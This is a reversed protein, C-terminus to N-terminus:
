KAKTTSKFILFQATWYLIITVIKSYDYDQIFKTFAINTDSIAFLSAGVFAYIAVNNFNRQLFARWVMTIIVLIYIIVPITLDGLHPYFYFILIGAVAYFPLSSLINLQNNRKSFAIIYFIHAILFSALGFIFKDVINMLFVDGLLSFIFGIFILKNYKTNPKLLILLAILPLPKFIARFVDNDIYVAYCFLLGAIVFLTLLFKKM